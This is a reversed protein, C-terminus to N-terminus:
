LIDSRGIRALFLCKQVIRSCITSLEGVSAIEEKFPHDDMFPTAVKYLQETTKKALECYREVCKKAHDEMDYSCSSMTEADRKGTARTESLKGKACASIRSELMSIYNDMIDKSIQSERQTCGFYVHDLFSTPEELDVEKNLVKWMPDINQKM